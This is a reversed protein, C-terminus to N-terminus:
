RQSQFKEIADRHAKDIQTVDIQSRLAEVRDAYVTNSPSTRIRTIEDETVRKRLRETETEIIMNKAQAFPVVTPERREKVRVLHVGTRTVIPPSWEGVKLAFAPESLAPDLESPKVWGLEGHHRAFGPDDSYQKAIDTFNAGALLKARAEEARAKAMEATRGQLSVVIHMPSIRPPERFKEPEARYLEEARKELGPLVAKKEVVELYKQALYGERIQELRRRFLPDEDLKAADARLALTRNVFLADIVKLITEPNARAEERLHEPFRTMAADFDAVTIKVAGNELLVTSPEMPAALAFGALLALAFGSITKWMM